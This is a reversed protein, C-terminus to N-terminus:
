QYKRLLSLICFKIGIDINYNIIIKRGKKIKICFITVFNNYNM